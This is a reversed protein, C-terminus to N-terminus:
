ERRCYNALFKIAIEKKPFTHVDGNSLYAKNEFALGLYVRSVEFTGVLYLVCSHSSLEEVLLKRKRPNM